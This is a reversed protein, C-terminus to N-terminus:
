AAEYDYKALLPALKAPDFPGDGLAAAAERFYQEFGGPSNVNLYRVPESGPNSFTHPTGPAVLAVGGLPLQLTEDGIRMTLEGDVVFFMDVMERHRHLPPGPFGPPATYEMFSFRGGTEGADAKVVIKGPGITITEGEG